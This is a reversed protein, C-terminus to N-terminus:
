TKATSLNIIRFAIHHGQQRELQTRPPALISVSGNDEDKTSEKDNNNNEKTTLRTIPQTNSDIAKTHRM